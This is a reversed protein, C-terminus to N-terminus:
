LKMKYTFICISIVFILRLKQIAAPPPLLPHLMLIFLHLSQRQNDPCRRMDVHFLDSFATVTDFTLASAVRCLRTADARVPDRGWGVAQETTQVAAPLRRHPLAVPLVIVTVTATATGHTVENNVNLTNTNPTVLSMSHAVRGSGFRGARGRGRGQVRRGVTSTSHASSLRWFPNLAAAHCLFRLRACFTAYLQMFICILSRIHTHSPM